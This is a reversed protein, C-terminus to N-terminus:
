SKQIKLTQSGAKLIYIGAPLGSLSLRAEQSGIETQLVAVGSVNYITAISGIPLNSIIVDNGQLVISPKKGISTDIVEKEHAYVGFTYRKVESLRVRLTQGGKVVLDGGDFSITPTQGSVPDELSVINKSGDKMHVIVANPGAAPQPIDIVDDYHSIQGWFQEDSQYNALYATPVHVKMNAIVEEDFPHYWSVRPPTEALITLNRLNPCGEFADEGIYTLGKGIYVATLNKCDWFADESISRVGDPIVIASLECKEFANEDIVVVKYTKGDETVYEPIFITGTLNDDADRVYAENEGGDWGDYCSYYVGNLGETRLNASATVSVLALMFAILLTKKKMCKM